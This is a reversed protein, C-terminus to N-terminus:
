SWRSRQEKGLGEQKQRELKAKCSELTIIEGFFDKVEPFLDHGDYFLKEMYQAHAGFYKSWIAKIQPDAQLAEKGVLRYAPRIYFQELDNDIRLKIQQCLEPDAALFEIKRFCEDLACDGGFMSDLLKVMFSVTKKGRSLSDGILRYLVCYYPIQVYNKAKMLCEFSFIVDESMKLPAFEIANERLFSTRIMKGWVNGNVGGTMWRDVRERADDPLLRPEEPEDKDKSMCISQELPLSMLDLVDTDAVPYYCGTTHVVDADYEKAYKYMIELGKPLIGDDSDLFTVYEGKALSIAKNRAAAPGANKEQKVLVVRPDDKYRERCIEFENDPSCDDIVLIEIDKLTQNTLADISYIVTKEANYMPMIATVKIM